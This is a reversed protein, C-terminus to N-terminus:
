RLYGQQDYDNLDVMFIVGRKGKYYKRAIHEYASDRGMCVKYYTEYLSNVTNNELVGGNGWSWINAYGDVSNGLANKASYEVYIDVLDKFPTKPDDSNDVIIITKVELSAPIKLNDALKDLGKEIIAYHKREIELTEKDISSIESNNNGQNINGQDNNAQNNNQTNNTNNYNQNNDCAVISFLCLVVLFLAIIKKM